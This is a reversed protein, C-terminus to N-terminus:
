TEQNAVHNTLEMVSVALVAVGFALAKLNFNCRPDHLGPTLDAGLGIYATKLQPKYQRYFHFDEAGPTTIRDIVGPEGLVKSIARKVAAVTGPDYAAGPTHKVSVTEVQAGNASAAHSVVADVKKLLEFAADDNEARVNVIIVGSEPITGAAGGGAHLGVVNVTACLLPDPKIGNVALASAAVADAANVGLHPRGSHAAKGTVRYRVTLSASHQLAPTAKAFPCETTPRLHIGVLVAVDDVAGADAMRRAGLGTEEAPQFILKLHGEAQPCCRSLIEGAWLVMTSHADHGCSHIFTKKGDVEHEMADMDARLAVVPQTLRGLTAVVGTEAVGSEVRFGAAGLRGAIYASTKREEFPGEPTSHLTRYTEVIESESERIEELIRSEDMM